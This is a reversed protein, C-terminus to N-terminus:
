ILNRYEKILRKENIAVNDYKHNINLRSNDLEKKNMKQFKGNFNYGDIIQNNHNFVLIQLYDKKIEVLPVHDVYFMGLSYCSCGGDINLWNQKKNYLFPKDKLPSHGRIVLYGEKGLNNYGWLDSTKERKWLCDEVEISNDSIKLHCNDYVKKPPMSHVLLINKGDIKEDFKKYIELNGMYKYYDIAKEYGLKDLDKELIWGGNYIWLGYYNIYGWKLYDLYAQYMLLEHNGGLYHVKIKGKGNCRAIVDNLMRLSHLGRDILDGNIYLEVEENKSINDLYAMVSDYVEGNGHLDSIIYKRM